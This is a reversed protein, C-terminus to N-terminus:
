ILEITNPAITFKVNSSSRFTPFRLDIDINIPESFRPEFEIIGSNPNVRGYNKDANILEVGNIVDYNAPPFVELTGLNKWEVNIVESM